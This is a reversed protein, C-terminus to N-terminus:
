SKNRFNTRKQKKEIHYNKIECNDHAYVSLNGNFMLHIILVKKYLKKFTM